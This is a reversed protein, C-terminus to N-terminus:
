NGELKKNTMLRNIHITLYAVEEKTIKNSNVIEVYDKVNYAVTLAKPYLLAVQEFLGTDNETIMKGEFYREVFFKLHTIFRQYHVDEREFDTKLEYKVIDSIGGVLKAYDMGKSTSTDVNQANIIHFAINAAEEPPLVQGLEKKVLKLAFEGVSFEKPYYNKIEWYVRNLINLGNKYREVSFNLHDSLTFFVSTNLRTDLLEEARKIIQQTIDFYVAPISDFLRLYEQIQRNDVPIFVRNVDEDDVTQGIKRSYGIGKGFFVYEQQEDDAALITNPNLIKRIIM